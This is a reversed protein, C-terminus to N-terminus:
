NASVEDESPEVVTAEVVADENLAESVKARMSESFTRVKAAAERAQAPLKEEYPAVIIEATKIVENVKADVKAAQRRLNTTMGETDIAEDVKEQVSKAAVSIKQAGLVGLGVVTFLADKVKKANDNTAAFTRVKEAAERGLNTAITTLEAM